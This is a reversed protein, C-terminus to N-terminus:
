LLVPSLEWRVDQCLSRCQSMVLGKCQAINDAILNAMRSMALAVHESRAAKNKKGNSSTTDIVLREVVPSGECVASSNKLKKKVLIEQASLSYRKKGGENVNARRCRNYLGFYGGQDEKGEIEPTVWM